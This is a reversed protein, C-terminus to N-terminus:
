HFEVIENNGIADILGNRFREIKFKLNYPNLEEEPSLTLNDLILSLGEEISKSEEVSLSGDCDSHNLLPMIGHEISELDKEGGYGAYEELKIGIQNALDHRFRNFSSYPGNWCGHTTDLGM